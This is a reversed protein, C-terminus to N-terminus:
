KESCKEETTGSESSTSDCKMLLNVKSTKLDFTYLSMSSFGGDGGGCSMYLVHETTLMLPKFCGFYPAGGVPLYTEKELSGDEKLYSVYIDQGAGGGHNQIGYVVFQRDEETNCVQISALPGTSHEAEAKKAKETLVSILHTDSFTTITYNYDGSIPLGSHQFAGNFDSDYRSGCQFGILDKDAISKIERPYDKGSSTIWASAEDFARKPFVAPHKMQALPMSQTATQQVTSPKQTVYLFSVGVALLLIVFLLLFQVFGSERKM